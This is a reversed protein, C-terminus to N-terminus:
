KVKKSLMDPNDNIMKDLKKIEESERRAEGAYHEKLKKNIKKDEEAKANLWKITDNIPKYKKNKDNEKITELLEKAKDVVRKLM